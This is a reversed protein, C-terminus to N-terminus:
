IRRQRDWIEPLLFSRTRDFAPFLFCVLGLSAHSFFFNGKGYGDFPEGDTGDAAQQLRREPGRRDARLRM